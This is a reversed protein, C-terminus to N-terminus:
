DPSEAKKTVLVVFSRQCYGVGFAATRALIESKDM